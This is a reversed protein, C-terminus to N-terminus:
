IRRKWIEPDRRQHLVALVTVADHEHLFYVAYPFRNLLGRRVGNGALPFQLPTKRIRDLLPILEDALRRGLGPRQDEYWGTAEEIDLRAEPRYLLRTTM